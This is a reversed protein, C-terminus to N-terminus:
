PRDAEPAVTSRLRRPRSGGPARDEDIRLRLGDEIIALAKLVLQLDTGEPFVVAAKTDPLLTWRTGYSETLKKSIRTLREVPHIKITFEVM